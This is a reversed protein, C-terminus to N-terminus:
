LIDECAIGDKDKDLDNIDTGFCIKSIELEDQADSQTEFDSCDMDEWMKSKSPCFVETYMKQVEDCSPVINNVLVGNITCSHYNKAPSITKYKQSISQNSSTCGSLFFVSVFLICITLFIRTM